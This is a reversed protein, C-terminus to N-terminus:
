VNADYRVIEWLTTATADPVPWVIGGDGQGNFVSRCFMYGNAGFRWRGNINRQFKHRSDRTLDTIDTTGIWAPIDRWRRARFRLNAGSNTGAVILGKFNEDELQRIQFSGRNSNGWNILREVGGTFPGNGDTRSNFTSDGCCDSCGGTILGRLPRAQRKEVGALKVAADIDREDVESDEPIFSNDIWITVHDGDDRKFVSHAYM